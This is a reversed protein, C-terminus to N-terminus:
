ILLKLLKTRRQLLERTPQIYLMWLSKGNKLERLTSPIGSPDSFLYPLSLEELGIIHGAEGNIDDTQRSKLALAWMAM